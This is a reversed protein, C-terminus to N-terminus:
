QRGPRRTDSRFDTQQGKVASRLHPADRQSKWGPSRTELAKAKGSVSREITEFDVYRSWEREAFGSRARYCDTLYIIQHLVHLSAWSFFLTILLRYQYIGLYVVGMPLLFAFAAYRGHRARFGGDLLTYTITSFLHPGGVLAAVAINVLDIAQQPRMWGSAQASWAILFPVPVLAASLILLPLDWSPKYIWGPVRQCVRRTGACAAM